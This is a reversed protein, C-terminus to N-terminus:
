QSVIRTHWSLSTVYNCRLYELDRISLITYYCKLLVSEYHLVKMIVFLNQDVTHDEISGSHSDQRGVLDSHYLVPTGLYHPLIDAAYICWASEWTVTHFYELVGKLYQLTLLWTFRTLKRENSLPLLCRHMPKKDRVLKTSPLPLHRFVNDPTCSFM